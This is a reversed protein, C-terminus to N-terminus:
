TTNYFPHLQRFGFTNTTPKFTRGVRIPRLLGFSFDDGAGKWLFGNNSIRFHIETNLDHLANETYKFYQYFYFPVENELNPYITGHSINAFPLTRENSAGVTYTISEGATSNNKFFVRLKISGRWYTFLEGWKELGIREDGTYMESRYVPHHSAAVVAEYPYLKHIIDRLSTISDGNVVNKLGWPKFSSHFPEFPKIFDARPNSEPKISMDIPCAVQFDRGAAKYVNLHIPNNLAMDAQSWALIGCYLRFPTGDQHPRMPLKDMFPLEFEIETSGEIEYVRHYCDQWDELVPATDFNLWFVLRVNHYKSATVYIKYKVSGSVYEFNQIMWDMYCSRDHLMNDVEFIPTSPTLDHVSVLMPTGMIHNINMEDIAPGLDLRPAVSNNADIAAKPMLSTGRGYNLDPHPCTKLMTSQNIAGPMDLAGMIEIADAATKIFDPIQKSLRAAGAVIPNSPISLDDVGAKARGAQEVKSEPEIDLAEAIIHYKAPLSVKANTFQAYVDVKCSHVEGDISKLPNLVYINASALEDDAHANLALERFPSIFDQTLSGVTAADVNLIMHPFGSMYPCDDMTHQSHALPVLCVMLSGYLFKSATIRVTITVGGRFYRFDALKKAIYQVDFLAKPFPIEALRHGHALATTWTATHVKYERELIQDLTMHEFNEIDYISNVASMANTGESENVDAYIGLQVEQTPVPVNTSRENFENSDKTEVAGVPKFDECFVLGEPEIDNKDTNFAVKDYDDSHYFRMVYEQWLKRKNSVGTYQDPCRIKVLKLFERSKENFIEEGHHVLETFFSDSVALLSDEPTNGKKYWYVSELITDMELPAFTHYGDDRFARGLFRITDLTDPTDEVEVKSWHTYTMDFRSKFYPTMKNCTLGEVNVAIVNDDGYTTIEFDSPMIHFDFFLILFCMVINVLSNYISTIPNGSPNGRFVQYINRGHIRCANWIHMFLLSRIRANIPGDNYWRNIFECIIEGLFGPVSGDYNKFDGALISKAMRMLRRKLRRWHNSHANIGVAIGKEVCLSQVYEVFALTYKRMLFLYHLPCGAFLRTKGLQSKEESIREDKLIDCWIVEIQEGHKLKEDCEELFNRFEPEITHGNEPDYKVYKSKGKGAGLNWPYGASTGMCISKIETGPIGALCEDFTLIRASSNDPYMNDLYNLILDRPAPTVPTPTQYLKASAIKYPEVWEGVKNQFPKLHAPVYKPRGFCGWMPGRRIKSNQPYLYGKDASVVRDVRLESLNEPVIDSSYQDICSQIFEQTITQAFSVDRSASGGYHMGILLACNNKDRYIIPAGSFGKQTNNTYRLPKKVCYVYGYAHHTEYNADEQLGYDFYNVSCYAVSPGDRTVLSLPSGNELNPYESEKVINKFCSPPRSYKAPKGDYDQLKIMAFDYKRKIILCRHHFRTTYEGNQTEVRLYIEFEPKNMYPELNSISHHCTAIWDDKVHFGESQASCVKDDTGARYAALQLTVVSQGTKLTTNHLDLEMSQPRIDEAFRLKVTTKPGKGKTRHSFSDMEIDDGEKVANFWEYATKGVIVLCLIVAIGIMIDRYKSGCWEYWGDEVFYALIEECSYTRFGKRKTPKPLSDESCFARKFAEAPDPEKGPEPADHILDDDSIEDVTEVDAEPQIEDNDALNRIRQERIIANRRKMEKRHNFEDVVPLRPKITRDSLLEDINDLSFNFTAARQEKFKKTELCLLALERTTIVKGILDPRALSREVRWAADELNEDELRKTRYVVINMRRKWAENDTLGLQLEANNFGDNFLNTTIFLYDSDFNNNGKQDFAMDLSYKEGNVMHIHPMAAARRDAIDSSSGFDDCIVIKQQHYGEFYKATENMIFEQTPDFEPPVKSKDIADLYDARVIMQKILKLALSKGVSNPGCLLCCMTEFRGANADLYNTAQKYLKEFELFRAMYTRATFSAVEREFRPDRVLHLAISYEMIIEEVVIKTFLDRNKTVLYRDMAKKSDILESIYTRYGFDLPDFGFLTRSTSAIFKNTMGMVGNFARVGNNMYQFQSNARRIEADSMNAIDFKHLLAAVGSYFDSTEGAHPTIDFMAYPDDVPTKFTDGLSVISKIMDAVLKPETVLCYSAHSLATLYNGQLAYYVAHIGAKVNVLILKAEANLDGSNNFYGNTWNDIVVRVPQVQNGFYFKIAQLYIYPIFERIRYRVVFATYQVMIWDYLHKLMGLHCIFTIIFMILTYRFSMKNCAIILLAILWWKINTATICRFWVVEQVYDYSQKVDKIVDELAEPVIDSCTEKLPGSELEVVRCSEFLRIFNNKVSKEENCSEFNPEIRIDEFQGCYKESPFYEWQLLDRKIAGRKVFENFFRAHEKLTGNPVIPVMRNMDPNFVAFPSIGLINCIFVRGVFGIKHRELISFLICHQMCCDGCQSPYALLVDKFAARLSLINPMALFPDGFKLDFYAAVVCMKQELFGDYMHAVLVPLWTEFMNMVEAYWFEYIQDRVECHLTSDLRPCPIYNNSPDIFKDYYDQISSDFLPHCIYDWFERQNTNHYWLLFASEQIQYICFARINDSYRKNRLQDMYFNINRAYQKRPELINHNHWERYQKIEAPLLEPAKMARWLRKGLYEPFRSIRKDLVALQQRTRFYQIGFIRWMVKDIVWRGAANLMSDILGEPEIDDAYKFDRAQTRSQTRTKATQREYHQYVTNVLDNTFIKHYNDYYVRDMIIDRPVNEIFMKQYEPKGLFKCFMERTYRKIETQEHRPLSSQKLYQHAYVLVRDRIVTLIQRSIDEENEVSLYEYPIYPFCWAVRPSNIDLEMKKNLLTIIEEHNLYGRTSNIISKIKKPTLHYHKTTFKSILDRWFYGLRMPGYEYLSPAYIVPHLVHQHHPIIQRDESIFTSCVDRFVHTLLAEVYVQWDWQHYNKRVASILSRIHPKDFGDEDDDDECFKELNNLLGKFKDHTLYKFWSPLRNSSIDYDSLVLDADNHFVVPKIRRKQKTKNLIPFDELSESDIDSKTFYATLREVLDFLFLLFEFVVIWVCFDVLYEQAIRLVHSDYLTYLAFGCCLKFSVSGAENLLREVYSRVGMYSITTHPFDCIGRSIGALVRGMLSDRTSFPHDAVTIQQRMQEVLALCNM